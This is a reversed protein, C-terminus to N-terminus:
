LKKIKLDQTVLSLEVFCSMNLSYDNVVFSLSYYSKDKPYDKIAVDMYNNGEFIHYPILHVNVFNKRNKRNKSDIYNLKGDLLRLEHNDLNDNRVCINDISRSFNIVNFM